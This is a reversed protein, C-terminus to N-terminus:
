GIRLAAMPDIRAARRAPIYSAALAVIVFLIAIGAFTAPDTATIHFLLGKMVRTLAFAGAIGIAIGSLSLSLGQRLVLRLIDAQQAGLARRIGVEQTRRAVSYAIVGYIGIIALLLAVGAFSGLLWMTLRRQGFTSTLVSEMTKIDALPQDPDVALVAKRMAGAFRLPDTPTRLVLYATQPPHVVSPLYFEPVANNALGGEHIDAVIGVVEMWGIAKDYGEKIRRGIPNEGSPYEPWLLHALTENIVMVPSAGPINDRASLERGRKLPIGLARFYGPTISQIVANTAPEGIDPSPKGQVWYNTRIWTTTPLSMAIAAASVGPLQEVRPLLERFFAAKKSDTDYRALPLAIKATLLNVPQFGPDVEHLAVFSRMLLGAGILLVISFAIQGVVLLGRASFRASRGQEAAAGSVRLEQALDPRSAQMSPFLGFLVATLISLGVGFALVASDLRIEAARSLSIAVLRPAASLSWKALLM